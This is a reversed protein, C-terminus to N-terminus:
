YSKGFYCYTKAPKNCHVCKLGKTSSQKLPKNLSKVGQLKFKIEEECETQDCWPILVIKKNKIHPSKHLLKLLPSFMYPTFGWGPFCCFELPPSEWADITTIQM